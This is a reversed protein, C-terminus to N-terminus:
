TLAVAIVWLLAFAGVAIMPRNWKSKVTGDSSQLGSTRADQWAKAIEDRGTAVEPQRIRENHPLISHPRSKLDSVLEFGSGFSGPPTPAGWSM